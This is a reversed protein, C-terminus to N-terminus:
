DAGTEYRRDELSIEYVLHDRHLLLVRSLGRAAKCLLFSDEHADGRSGRGPCAELHCLARLVRALEDHHDDRVGTLAVQAGPQEFIHSGPARAPDYPSIALMM